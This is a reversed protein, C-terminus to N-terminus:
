GRLGLPRAAANASGSFSTLLNFLSRNKHPNRTRSLACGKSKGSGSSGSWKFAKRTTQSFIQVYLYLLVGRVFNVQLDTSRACVNASAHQMLLTGRLQQVFDAALVAVSGLSHLRALQEAFKTHSMWLYMCVDMCVYMCVYICVYMCICTKNCVYMRVYMCVYM